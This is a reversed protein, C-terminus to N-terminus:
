TITLRGSPTTAASVLGCRVTLQLLRCVWRVCYTRRSWRVARVPQVAAPVSATNIWCLCFRKVRSSNSASIPHTPCGIFGTVTLGVTPVAQSFQMKSSTVCISVKKNEEELNDAALECARGLGIIGPVNETGARRGAEQHGGLMFPSLRTGKRVYLVGVGKPAHLKHGSLSLLDINSGALNLPIKGVAQVADTHFVVGKNSTLGAIKEIPFIVGTENNAYMITVLATDDDLCEELEAIDLRGQKDVGLEIVTLGHNELERCTTLVAPHEVRTTIIKHRNPQAALAGRIAANDSETGGSTFIVEAPDCGLLEAVQERAKGIRGGLQGGFTHMSSPNGYLRCFFPKMEELVEEAVKTTANNDFYIPEM